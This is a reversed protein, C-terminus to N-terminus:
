QGRLRRMVWYVYQLAYRYLITLIRRLTADGGCCYAGHKWVGCKNRGALRSVRWCQDCWHDIRIPLLPPSAGGGSHIICLGRRYELGLRRRHTRSIRVLKSSTHHNINSQKSFPLVLMYM